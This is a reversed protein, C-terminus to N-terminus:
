IPLHENSVDQMIAKGYGKTTIPNSIELIFWLWFVQVSTAVLGYQVNYLSGEICEHKAVSEMHYCKEIKWSFQGSKRIKM